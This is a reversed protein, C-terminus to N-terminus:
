NPFWGAGTKSCKYSKQPVDPDCSVTFSTVSDPKCNGWVEINPESTISGMNPANWAGNSQFCASQPLGQQICPTYNGFETTVSTASTPGCNSPTPNPAPPGPPAPTPVSPNGKVPAWGVSIYALNTYERYYVIVHQTAGTPFSIDVTFTKGSQGQGRTDLYTVGGVILSMEDDAVMTFRYTGAYFFADTEYSATFNDAPVNPGPSGTGWNYSVYATTDTMVPAGSWDTNAYYYATWMNGSQATANQISIAPVLVVAILLAVVLIRRM